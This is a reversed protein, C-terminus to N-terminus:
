SKIYNKISDVSIVDSESKQLKELVKDLTLDCFEDEWDGIYYLSRSSEVVGFLIPDKERDVRIKREAKTENAVDGTADTHLIVYNDFILLEDAKKKLEYIDSPIVRNFNKIWTLHLKNVGFVGHLKVIDEESIYIKFDSNLLTTELLITNFKDKLKEVLAIQKLDEAQKIERLYFEEIERNNKSEIVKFSNKIKKFFLETNKYIVSIKEDRKLQSVLMRKSIKKLFIVWKLRLKNKITPNIYYESRKREYIHEWAYDIEDDHSLMSSSNNISFSSVDSFEVGSDSKNYNKKIKQHKPLTKDIIFDDFINLKNNRNVM